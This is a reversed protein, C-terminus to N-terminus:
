YLKFYVAVGILIALVVIVMGLPMKWFVSHIAARIAHHILQNFFGRLDKDM